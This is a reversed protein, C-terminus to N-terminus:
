QRKEGAWTEQEVALRVIENVRRLHHVVYPITEEQVWPAAMKDRALRLERLILKFWLEFVQHVVIFHLEDESLQADHGALGGQLSLLQDLHLYDWYAVSHSTSM